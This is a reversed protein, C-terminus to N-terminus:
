ANKDLIIKQLDLVYYGANVFESIVKEKQDPCLAIIAGGGGAGTLKAGIAGHSRATDIMDEIEPSSVEIANLLGHCINMLMGLTKYDGKILAESGSKSLEDIQCFIKEYLVPSQDFRLKVGLIQEKTSSRHSSVAIILPLFKDLDISKVPKLNNKSYLMPIGYTAMNNDVGSPSGHSLKECEYAIQNVSKNDMSLNLFNNFARIIAVAFAASSGLGAGM